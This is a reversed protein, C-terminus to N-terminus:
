RCTATPACSGARRPLHRGGRPDDRARARLGQPRHLKFLEEIEYRGTRRWPEAPQLVPMLMEQGGIADMEERIIAVVRQHSAGAPRCGADVHGRGDPPDARRAGDAQALDGGRRRAAAERDAAPIRLPPDDRPSRERLAAALTYTRRAVRRAARAAARAPARSPTRAAASRAGRGAPPDPRSPAHSPQLGARSPRSLAELGYARGPARGHRVLNGLAINVDYSTCAGNPGSCNEAIVHERSTAQDSASAEPRRQLWSAGNEHECQATYEAPRRCGRRRPKRRRCSRRRASRPLPTRRADYRSCRRGALRTGARAADPERVAGAPRSAKSARAGGLLPSDPRGFFSPKPRNKSSRELLRDRLGIQAPSSAPPVNKFTGGSADQRRARARPRRAPDGVVLQKRLAPNPDIQEKILQELM